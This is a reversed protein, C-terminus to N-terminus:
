RAAGEMVMNFLPCDGVIRREAMAVYEGNLEIGLARRVERFVAVLHDIYLEPTAELGIQGDIGYDRLGWDIPLRHLSQRFVATRCQGYSM